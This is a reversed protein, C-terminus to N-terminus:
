TPPLPTLPRESRTARIIVRQEIAEGDRRRHPARLVLPTSYIKFSADGWNRQDELEFLDGSFRVDVDLDQNLRIQLDSFAPILPRIRGDVIRQPGILRPLRGHATKPAMTAYRRGAYPEPPLLVCIGIRNFVIEGRPEATFTYDLTGHHDGSARGSIELRVGDVQCDGRFALTFAGGLDSSEIETLSVPVTGWARDRVAFLIRRVIELGDLSAYRIDPGVLWGTVPGARVSKASEASGHPEKISNRAKPGASM